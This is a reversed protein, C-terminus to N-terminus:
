FPNKEFRFEVLDQSTVPQEAVGVPAMTGNVYFLWYKNQDGNRFGDIAEILVGLDTEQIEIQIKNEQALKQLIAYVTQSGFFEATYAKSKTADFRFVFQAEQQIPAPKQNATQQEEAKPLASNQLSCATLILFVSLIAGFLFLFARHM